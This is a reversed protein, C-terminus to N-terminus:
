FTLIYNADIVSFDDIVVTAESLDQEGSTPNQYGICAMGASKAAAVGNSSDEIVICREPIEALQRCTELFVDPAPKGNPVSEGSFILNFYQEIDLKRLVAYIFPYSSSSAVATLLGHLQIDKLLPVIGKVPGANSESVLQIMLAEREAILSEVSAELGYKEKFLSFRLQNTTGAYATMEDISTQIGHAALIKQDGLYHLPQSDILVGDM